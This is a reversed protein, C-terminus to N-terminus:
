FPCNISLSLARPCSLAGSCWSRFVTGQPCLWVRKGERFGWVHHPSSRISGADGFFVLLRDLWEPLAVAELDVGGFERLWDPDLLSATFRVLPLSSQPPPLPSSSDLSVPAKDDFPPLPCKPFRWHLHRHGNETRRCPIFESSTPFDPRNTEYRQNILLADHTAKLQFTSSM